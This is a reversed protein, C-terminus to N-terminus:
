PVVFVTLHPSLPSNALQGVEEDSLHKPIGSGELAAYAYQGLMHKGDGERYAWELAGWRVEGLVAKIEIDTASNPEPLAKILAACNTGQEQDFALAQDLNARYWEWIKIYAESLSINAPRTM